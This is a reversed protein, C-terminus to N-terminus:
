LRFSPAQWHWCFAHTIDGFPKPSRLIGPSGAGPRATVAQRGVPCCSRYFVPSGVWYLPRQGTASNNLVTWGRLADGDSM